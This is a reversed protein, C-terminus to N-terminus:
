FVRRYKDLCALYSYNSLYVDYVPKNFSQFCKKFLGNVITAYEDATEAMYVKNKINNEAIKDTYGCLSERSGVFCKGYSFAEATKVKMGGGSFIPAIVVDANRYYYGIDDVTGYTTISTTVGDFEEAYKELGMGVLWLSYNCKLRPCVKKIFWRIGELNPAYEAGVFLLKIEDNEDHNKIEEPEGPDPMTM